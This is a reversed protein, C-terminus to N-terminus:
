RTTETRGARVATVARVRVLVIAAALIECVACLGLAITYSGMTDRLAGLVAPGFAFTFQNLAVILSVIRNFHEKPYETQVILGPFSVVNGVGLGFLACAAYLASASTVSIMAIVAAAQLVFVCAAAARRDVRDIVYGAAIRGIISAAMTVSVALAAANRGLLPTLYVIQHTLFGAQAFLAIAFPASITWFHRSRMLDGRRVLAPATSSEAVSRSPSTSAKPIGDPASGIDAPGRHLYRASLPVLIM